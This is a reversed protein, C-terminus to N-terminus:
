KLSLMGTTALRELDCPGGELIVATLGEEMRRDMRRRKMLVQM